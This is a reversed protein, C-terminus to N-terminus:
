EAAELALDAPTEACISRIWPASGNEGQFGMVLPGFFEPDRRMEDEMQAIRALERRAERLEQEVRRRAMEFARRDKEMGIFSRRGETGMERMRERGPPFFSM